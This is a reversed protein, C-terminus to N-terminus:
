DDHLGAPAAGTGIAPYALGAGHQYVLAGGAQGAVYGIGFVAFTGLTAVLAVPLAARRRGLAMAAVMLALVGGGVWAFREGAEAHAEILAEDVVREVREEQDEGSQVALVASAVLIAQLGVALVWTRAPLWGRWWAVLIVVAILPMLVGLAIPVHVLKPHFFLSEM